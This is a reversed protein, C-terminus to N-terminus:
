AALYKSLFSQTREAEFMALRVNGLSFDISPYFEIKTAEFRLSFSKHAKM